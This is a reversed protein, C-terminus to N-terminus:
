SAHADRWQKFMPDNVTAEAEEIMGKFTRLLCAVEEPDFLADMEADSKRMMLVIVQTACTAVENLMLRTTM